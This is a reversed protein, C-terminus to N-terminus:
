PRPSEWGGGLAKYLAITAQAQEQEVEIVTAEANLWTRRADEQDMLSTFGAEYGQNVLKFATAYRDAARHAHKVQARAANLRILADEVEAVAQRVTARYGAVAEDYAGRAQDVAAKRQGADFLPLQISPGISWTPGVSGVGAFSSRNIGVVGALSLSPYRDAEAVGIDASAAAVAREKAIVDPRQALTVAPVQTVVVEESRLLKGSGPLLRQRLAHTPVGTLSVLRNLAQECRGKQQELTAAAQAAGAQARALDSDATFGAQTKEETLKETTQQSTWSEADLRQRRECARRQAYADAVEAALTIRADYWEAQRNGWRANAAEEGRRTKGFLDIEWSADMEGSALGQLGNWGNSTTRSRSETGRLDLSPLAQARHQALVARAQSLRALAQDLTPNDQEADTILGNLVPDHFHEWWRAVQAVRGAVPMPTAWQGAPVTRDLAPTVPRYEPGVTCGTLWCALLTAIPGVWQGLPRTGRDRPRQHVCRNM